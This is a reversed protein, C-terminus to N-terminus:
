GPFPDAAGDDAALCEELKGQLAQAEKLTENAEARRGLRELIAAEERLRRIRERMESPKCTVARTVSVDGQGVATAAHAPVSAIIFGGAMAVTVALVSFRKTM